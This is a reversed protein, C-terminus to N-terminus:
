RDAEIYGNPAPVNPWRQIIEHCAEQIHHRRRKYTKPPVFVTATPVDVAQCLRMDPRGLRGLFQECHWHILVSLYEASKDSLPHTKPFSFKVGGVVREGKRKTIGELIVHPLVSVAVGSIMIPLSQGLPGLTRRFESLLLQNSLQKFTRLAEVCLDRNQVKFETDPNTALLKAVEQDLFGLDSTGKTVFRAIPREAQTWRVM